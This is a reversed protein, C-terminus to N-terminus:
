IAYHLSLHQFSFYPLTLVYLIIHIINLDVKELSTDQASIQLLVHIIQLFLVEPPHFLLHSPKLFFWHPIDLFLLPGTTAPASLTLHFFSVYFTFVSLCALALDHLSKQTVQAQYFKSGHYFHEM